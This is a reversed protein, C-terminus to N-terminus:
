RPRQSWKPGSSGVFLRWWAENLSKGERPYLVQGGGAQALAAFGPVEDFSDERVFGMCRLQHREPSKHAAEMLSVMSEIREYPPPADGLLLLVHESEPNWGFAGYRLAEFLARDVGEPVDGGGECQWADLSELFEDANATLPQTAVVEDRYGIWGWRRRGEAHDLLPVMSRLSQVTAAVEAEMSESLDALFVYDVADPLQARVEANWRAGDSGGGKGLSGSLREWGTALDRLTRVRVSSEPERIRWVSPDAPDQGAAILWAAGLRGLEIRAQEAVFGRGWVAGALLNALRGGSDAPPELVGLGLALGDLLAPRRLVLEYDAGVPAEPVKAVEADLVPSPGSDPLQTQPDTANPVPPTSGEARAGKTKLVAVSSLDSASDLSAQEQRVVPTPSQPKAGPKSPGSESSSSESSSRESSRLTPSPSAPEHAVPPPLSNAPSPPAQPPERLLLYGLLATNLFTLGLILGVVLYTSDKPRLTVEQGCRCRYQITM